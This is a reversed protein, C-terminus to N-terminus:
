FKVVSLEDDFAFFESEVKQILAFGNDGNAFLVVGRSSEPLLVVKTCVGPDGGTHTLAYEGDCYDQKIYWSLGYAVNRRVAAQPRIMDHYIEDTLGTGNLVNVGFLCYDEVTTFLGASAIAETTRKAIKYIRGEKDHREAYRESQLSENWLLSSDSMGYPEFILSDVMAEFPKDFKQEIARRLYEFGEGSYKVQTGPDFNFTLTKSENMWRWNDFGTQHTLVIRTTLERHRPDDEIDPDVWYHHLPEDLDWDGNSVLRLTLMAAIPKTLSAMSFIADYPAPIGERLEGYVKVQRLVGDEIIGIGLAPVNTELMLAKLDEEGWQDGAVEAGAHFTLAFLIPLVLLASLSAPSKKNRL